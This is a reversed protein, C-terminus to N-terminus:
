ALIHMMAYDQARVAEGGAVLDAPLFQVVDPPQALADRLRRSCFAYGDYTFYDPAFDTHTLSLRPRPIDSTLPLIVDWGLAQMAERLARSIEDTNHLGLSADRLLLRTFKASVVIDSGMLWLKPWPGAPNTDQAEPKTRATRKRM